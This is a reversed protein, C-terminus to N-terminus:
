RARRAARELRAFLATLLKASERDAARGALLSRAIALVDARERGFRVAEAADALKAAALDVDAQTAREQGPSPSAGRVARAIEWALVLGTAAVNLSPNDARAPVTVLLHCRALDENALGWKESGLLVAVRATPSSSLSAAVRAAAERPDLVEGRVARRRSGAHFTGVLLDRDAVAEAISSSPRAFAREVIERSRVAAKVARAVDKTFPDVLRLETIGMNHLFRALRGVNGAHQARKLVFVVSDALRAEAETLPAARATPKGRPYLDSV